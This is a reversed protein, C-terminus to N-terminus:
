NILKQNTIALLLEYSFMYKDLFSLYIREMTITRSLEVAVNNNFQKPVPCASFDIPTDRFLDGHRKREAEKTVCNVYRDLLQTDDPVENKFYGNCNKEKLKKVCNSYWDMSVEDGSVKKVSRHLVFNSQFYSIFLFDNTIM